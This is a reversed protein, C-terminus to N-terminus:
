MCGVGRTVKAKERRKEKAEEKVKKSDDKKILEKQRASADKAHQRKAAEESQRSCILDRDNALAIAM